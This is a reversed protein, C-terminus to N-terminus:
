NEIDVRGQAIRFISAKELFSPLFPHLDPTTLLVQGRGQISDLVLSRHREDLESLADDLLLVPEQSRGLRLLEAEGLRLSLAILRQEGRSGYRGMDQGKVRFHLDDRHPGVLTMAMRVERDRLRQLQSRFAKALEAEEMSSANFTAKYDLSLGGDGTLRRHENQALSELAKLCELRRALIPSGNAVLEEDWAEMGQGRAGSGGVKLLHNRQALVRQYRQLTKYYLPSLQSGLIDLFRRRLAPPGGILDIDQVGFWVALLLGVVDGARRPAGNVLFRREVAISGPNSIAQPRAQLVQSVRLPQGGQQIDADVRTFALPEELADWHILEAEGGARPSRTTALLYIAELLNTKGQGNEGRFLSIGPPLSLDLDRFNRFNTLRLRTLFISAEKIKRM